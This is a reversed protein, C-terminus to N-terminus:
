YLSESGNNGPLRVNAIGGATLFSLATTVKIDNLTYTDKLFDTGAM